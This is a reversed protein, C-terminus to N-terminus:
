PLIEAFMKVIKPKPIPKSPAKNMKKLPCNGIIIPNQIIEITNIIIEKTKSVKSPGIALALPGELNPPIKSIKQSRATSTRIMIAM